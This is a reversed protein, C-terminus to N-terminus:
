VLNQAWDAAEPFGLSKAQDISVLYKDLYGWTWPILIIIKSSSDFGWDWIMNSIYMMYPIGRGGTVDAPAVMM